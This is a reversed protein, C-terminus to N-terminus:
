KSNPDGLRVFQMKRKPKEHAAKAARAQYQAIRIRESAKSIGRLIAILALLAVIGGGITAMGATTKWFPMKEGTATGADPTRAPVEPAAPKAPTTEAPAPYATGFPTEVPAEEPTAEETPTETATEQFLPADPTPEAAAPTETAFPDAPTEGAAAVEPTAAPAPVVKAPGKVLHEPLQFTPDLVKQEYEAVTQKFAEPKPLKLGFKYVLEQFKDEYIWDSHVALNETQDQYLYPRIMPHPGSKAAAPIWAEPMPMPEARMVVLRGKPFRLSSPDSYAFSYKATFDGSEHYLAVYSDFSIWEGFLEKWGTPLKGGNAIQYAAFMNALRQTTRGESTSLDTRVTPIPATTGQAHAAMPAISGSLVLFPIILKRM